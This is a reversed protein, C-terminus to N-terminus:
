LLQRAVGRTTSPPRSFCRLNVANAHTVRFALALFFCSACCRNWAAFIRRPACERVVFHTNHPAIAVRRIGGRRSRRGWSEIVPMRDVPCPAYEIIGQGLGMRLRGEPPAAGDFVLTILQWQGPPFHSKMRFHAQHPSGDHLKVYPMAMRVTGLEHYDIGLILPFQDGASAEILPYQAPSSDAAHCWIALSFGQAGSIQGLLGPATCTMAMPGALGQGAHGPAPRGQLVSPGGRLILEFGNGSADALRATDM